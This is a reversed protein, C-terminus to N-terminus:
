REESAPLGSSSEAPSRSPRTSSTTARSSRASGSGGTIPRRAADAAAQQEHRDADLAELGAGGRRRGLEVEGLELAAGALHQQAGVHEAVAQDVDVGRPQHAGALDLQDVLVARPADGPDVRAEARAEPAQERPASRSRRRRARPLEDRPGLELREDAVHRGRAQPERVPADRVQMGRLDGVEDLRRAVLLALLDELRDALVLLELGVDELLEVVLM